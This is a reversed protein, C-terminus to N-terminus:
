KGAEIHTASLPPALVRAVTTNLRYGASQSARAAGATGALKVDGNM